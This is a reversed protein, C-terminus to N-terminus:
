SAGDGQYLEFGETEFDADFALAGTLGNIRMVVFSACDVLSLGRRGRQALLAVADAHDRSTIWHVWYDNSRELASLAQALGLRRQFLASAELLVYNHM